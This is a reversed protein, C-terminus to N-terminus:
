LGSSCVGGWSRSAPALTRSASMECSADSPVEAFSYPIQDLAVAQHGRGRGCKSDKETLRCRGYDTWRPGGVYSAMSGIHHDRRRWCEDRNVRTSETCFGVHSQHRDGEALQRAAHRRAPCCWRSGWCRRQEGPYRTQRAPARGGACCCLMASSGYCRSYARQDAPWRASNRSPSRTSRRTEVPLSSQPRANWCAARSAKIQQSM